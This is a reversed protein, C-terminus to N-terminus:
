SGSLNEGEESQLLRAQDLLKVKSRLRVLIREQEAIEAKVSDLKAEAQPLGSEEIEKRQEAYLGAKRNELAGVEESIEQLRRSSYIETQEIMTERSELANRWQRLEAQQFVHPCKHEGKINEIIEAVAPFWKSKAIIGSVADAIQPETYQCLQEYFM